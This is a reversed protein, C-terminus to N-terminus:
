DSEYLARGRLEVAREVVDEVLLNETPELTLTPLVHEDRIMVPVLTEAVIDFPPAQYWPPNLRYHTKLTKYGPKRVMIDYDGYWLFAFKVPSRGVEEDNVIVVAGPPQTEIRVTREVCGVALVGVLLGALGLRRAHKM